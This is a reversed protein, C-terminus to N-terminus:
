ELFFQAADSSVTLKQPRVKPAHILSQAEWWVKSMSRLIKDKEADSRARRLSRKLAYFEHRLADFKFSKTLIMKTM